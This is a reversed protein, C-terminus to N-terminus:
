SEGCSPHALRLFHSVIWSGLVKEIATSVLSRLYSFCFLYSRVLSGEFHAFRAFFMHWMIGVLVQFLLFM